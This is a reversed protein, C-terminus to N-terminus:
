VRHVQSLLPKWRIRGDKSKRATWAKGTPVYGSTLTVIGLDVRAEDVRATTANGNRLCTAAARQAKLRDDSVGIRRRVPGAAEWTYAIV